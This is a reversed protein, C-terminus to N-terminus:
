RARAEARWVESPRAGPITQTTGLLLPTPFVSFEVPGRIYISVLLVIVSVTITASILIDLLFSLMSMIM